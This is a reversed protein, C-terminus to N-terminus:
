VRLLSLVPLEMKIKKKILPVISQFRGGSKLFIVFLNIQLLSLEGKIVVRRIAYLLCWVIGIVIQM